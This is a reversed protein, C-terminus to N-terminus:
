VRQTSPHRQNGSAARKPPLAVRSVTIQVSQDDGQIQVAARDLGLNEILFKAAEAAVSSESQVKETVAARNREDADTNPPDLQPADAVFNDLDVPTVGPRGEDDMTLAHVWQM